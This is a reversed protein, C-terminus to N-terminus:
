LKIKQTVTNPGCVHRMELSLNTESVGSYTDKLVGVWSIIIIYLRQWQVM